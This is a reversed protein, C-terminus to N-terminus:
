CVFRECLLTKTDIAVYTFNELQGPQVCITKGLGVKWVGTMFESEHLHGFVAVSAGSKEIFKRVSKSGVERGDYCMDLKLTDPPQHIIYIAENDIPTPLNNLEEEITLETAFYEELNPIVYMTPPHVASLLGTGFQVGCPTDGVIDLKCRDKLRFMYDCVNNYGVFSIGGISVLKQAVNYVFKYEDCLENFTGDNARYDDNALQCLYNIGVQEFYDFHMRLENEIFDRQGVIGRRPLMDGGNVAVDAGHDHSVEELQCYKDTDGHLDTTYIIKM